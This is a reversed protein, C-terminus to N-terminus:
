YPDEEYQIRYVGPDQTDYAVVVTDGLGLKVMESSALSLAYDIGLFAAGEVTAVWYTDGLKEVTVTEGTVLESM